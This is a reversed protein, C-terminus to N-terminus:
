EQCRRRALAAGEKRSPWKGPVWSPWWVPGSWIHAACFSSSHPRSPLCLLPEPKVHWGLPSPLAAGAFSSLPPERVPPPPPPAPPPPTGRAERWTCNGDRLFSSISHVAWGLGLCGHLSRPPYCASLLGSHPLGPLAPTCPGSARPSPTSDMVGPGPATPGPEAMVVEAGLATGKREATLVPSISVGHPQHSSLTQATHGPLNLM